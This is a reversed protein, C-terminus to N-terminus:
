FRRRRLRGRFPAVVPAVDETLKSDLRAELRRKFRLGFRCKFRWHGFGALWTHINFRLRPVLYGFTRRAILPWLQRLLRRGSVIRSGSAAM